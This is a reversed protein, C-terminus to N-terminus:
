FCSRKERSMLFINGPLMAFLNTKQTQCPLVKEECGGIKRIPKTSTATLFSFKCPQMPFLGVVVQTIGGVDELRPAFGNKYM